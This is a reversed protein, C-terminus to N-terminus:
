LVLRAQPKNQQKEYYYTPRNGFLFVGMRAGNRSQKHHESNEALFIVPHFLLFSVM